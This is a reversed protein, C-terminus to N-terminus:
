ASRAASNSDHSRLLASLEEMFLFCQEEIWAGNPKAPDPRVPEGFYKVFLNYVEPLVTPHCAAIYRWALTQEAM